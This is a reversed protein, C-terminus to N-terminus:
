GVREQKEQGGLAQSRAERRSGAACPSLAVHWLSGVARPSVASPPSPSSGEMLEMPCKATQAWTECLGEEDFAM